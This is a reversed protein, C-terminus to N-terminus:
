TSFVRQRKGPVYGGSRLRPAHELLTPVFGARRLWYALTPGAIDAGTILVTKIAM